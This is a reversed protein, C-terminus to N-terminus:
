EWWRLDKEYARIIICRCGPHVNYRDYGGNYQKLIQKLEDITVGGATLNEVEKCKKCVNSDGESKCKFKRVRTKELYAIERAKNAINALETMGILEAKSRDLGAERVLRGVVHEKNIWRQQLVTELLIENVRKSQEDTLGSYKKWFGMDILAKIREKGYNKIAKHLGWKLIELDDNDAIITFWEYPIKKLEFIKEKM